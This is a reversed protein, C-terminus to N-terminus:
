SHQQSHHSRRVHSCDSDRPAGNGAWVAFLLSSLGHYRRRLGALSTMVHTDHQAQGRERLSTSLSKCLITLPSFPAGTLPPQYLAFMSPSSALGVAHEGQCRAKAAAKAKKSLHKRQPVYMASSSALSKEEDKDFGWGARETSRVLLAFMSHQLVRLTLFIQLLLLAPRGGQWAREYAPLLPPVTPFSGGNGSISASGRGKKKRSTACFCFRSVKNQPCGREVARRAPYSTYPFPACRRSAARM